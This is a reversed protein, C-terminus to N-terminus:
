QGCTCNPGCVCPGEEGSCTCVGNEDCSCDSACDCSEGHARMSMISSDMGGDMTVISYSVTFPDTNFTHLALANGTFMWTGMKNAPDVLTLAFQTEGDPTWITQGKVDQKALPGQLAVLQVNESASFTILGTYPQSRPALLVALQHEEHGMGPDQASTMTGSIAKMDHDSMGDYGKNHMGDHDGCQCTDDTGHGCTCTGGEDCSCGPCDCGEPGCTCGQMHDGDGCTCTGGEGCTCNPGCMCQGDMNGSCTCIGDTDCSCGEACQCTGDSSCTCNPGCMCSGEEGSCTCVGNEDCTCDAACYCEGRMGFSDSVKAYHVTYSVAFPDTSFTHLALANGTFMWTGMKNAPDVLTLAFKTEGDPTWITQGNVDDEALPGHLAVLQINESASYTLIGKYVKDTPPLIVALQHQEHGLGPDTESIM